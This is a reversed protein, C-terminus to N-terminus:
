EKKQLVCDMLVPFHDTLFLGERQTNLVEARVPAIDPTAFVYDIRNETPTGTFNHFTGQEKLGLAAYCDVLGASKAATVAPGTPIDNFDGILLASDSAHQRKAFREAVLEIGKARATTGRHDLHVNFVYVGKGTARHVLRAWTCVRPLSSDWSKSGPVDPTESLWFTGSDDLSWRDTRFFIPAAEGKSADAERSRGIGEYGTLDERLATVQHPLVEQFGIVDPALQALTERVLPRRNPWANRGDRPEDYRLNFTIVRM